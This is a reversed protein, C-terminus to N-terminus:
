YEVYRRSSDQCLSVAHHLQEVSDDNCHGQDHESEYIADGVVEDRISAECGRYGGFDDEADHRLHNSNQYYKVDADASHM